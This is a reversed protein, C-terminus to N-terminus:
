TLTADKPTARGVADEVQVKGEDATLVLKLNRRYINMYPKEIEWEDGSAALLKEFGFERDVQKKSNLHTYKAKQVPGIGVGGVVGRREDRTERGEDRAEKGAGADGSALRPPPYTADGNVVEIPPTKSIRNYLLYIVLIAGISILWVYLKRRRFDM